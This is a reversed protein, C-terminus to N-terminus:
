TAPGRAAKILRGNQLALRKARADIFVQQIEPSYNDTPLQDDPDAGNELLLRAVNGHFNMAAKMLATMGDVNALDVNAGKGLLLRVVDLHGHTAAFMLTTMGRGNDKNVNAGKELLLKVVDCHDNRGDLAACM